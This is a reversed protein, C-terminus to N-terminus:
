LDGPAKDPKRFSLLLLLIGSWLVVPFFFLTVQPDAVNGIGSQSWSPALVLAIEMGALGGVLLIIAPTSLRKLLFTEMYWVILLLSVFGILVLHLYAMVYPRNMYAMRAIGEHASLLQLLIKITLAATAVLLTRVSSTSFHSRIAAFATKLLRIIFLLFIVQLFGAVFGAANFLTGPDAWLTSLFYAPVCALALLRGAVRADEQSFPIGKQELIRFFLALVGFSFFGNYQFHLYYYVSFYYWNSQGPGAASTAAIAFPGLASILFFVLSIKSYWLAVSPAKARVDSFSWFGFLALLLTHVTAFLISFLGYGQLPFSVLMGALLVQIAIFLWRYRPRWKEPAFSNIFGLYLANSVWGLFMMHSHAHLWYPYNIWEMPQVFHWRLLLGIGGSVVFFILPIRFYDQM